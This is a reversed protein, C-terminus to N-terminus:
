IKEATRVSLPPFGRTFDPFLAEAACVLGTIFAGPGTHNLATVLHQHPRLPTFKPELCHLFVPGRSSTYQLPKKHQVSQLFKYGELKDVVFSGNM